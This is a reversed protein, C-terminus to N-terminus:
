GHDDTLTIDEETAPVYGGGGEDNTLSFGDETIELGRMTVRGNNYILTLQYPSDQKRDRRKGNGM